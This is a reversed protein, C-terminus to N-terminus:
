SSHLLTSNTIYNEAYGNYNKLTAPRVYPKSYREIYCDVIENLTVDGGTLSIGRRAKDRMTELREYAAKLTQAYEFKRQGNVMLSAQFYGDKRESISGEGNRRRGIKKKLRKSSM